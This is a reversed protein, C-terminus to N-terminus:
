RPKAEEAMLLLMNLESRLSATAPVVDKLPANEITHLLEQMRQVTDSVQKPTM